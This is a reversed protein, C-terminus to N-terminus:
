PVGHTVLFAMSKDKSLKNKLNILCIVLNRNKYIDPYIKAVLSFAPSYITM